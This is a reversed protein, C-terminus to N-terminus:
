KILTLVEKLGIELCEEYSNGVYVTGRGYINYGWKIGTVNTYTV